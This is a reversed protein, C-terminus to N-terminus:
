CDISQVFSESGGPINKPLIILTRTGAGYNSDIEVGFQKGFLLRIRRHVNLVGIKESNVINLDEDLFSDDSLETKIKKLKDEEIGLGDDIVSVLLKNSEERIAINVLGQGKKRELGHYISNEVIPQLILKPIEFNLVADDTTLNFKIKKGYRKEILFCYNKLYEMEKRVTIYKENDRNMNAEIIISFASIMDSIEDIGNIRAKWNIAELTNYLFHPNIQAQLAKIEADKMAIEKKYVTNILNKIRSSMNNFTRYVYGFEDERKSEIEIGINGKEIQHMKKILINLPKIIDLYFYDILILCIPLTAACLVLIFKAFDRIERFLLNSSIGIVLRWNAPEIESQLLYLTDGTIKKEGVKNQPSISSLEKLDSEINNDFTNHVFIKQQDQSFLWLNLKSNNILNIFVDFLYQENIKFILLGTENKIYQYDYIIKTIYIETVKGEDYIVHWIPKGKGTKAAEYLKDLNRLSDTTALQTRNAQFIRNNKNFRILIENLENKSFLTSQLYQQFTNQKFSNMRGSSIDNYTNYITRDYFIQVAFLKLREMREELYGSLEKATNQSDAITKEKMVDAYNRYGFYGIIIIPYMMFLVAILMLKKKISIKKMTIDERGVFYV